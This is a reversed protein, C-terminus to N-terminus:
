LSTKHQLSHQYLARNCTRETTILAARASAFEMQGLDDAVPQLLAPTERLTVSHRAPNRSSDELVVVQIRSGDLLEIPGRWYIGLKPSSFPRVGPYFESIIANDNVREHSTSHTALQRIHDVGADSSAVPWVLPSTVIEVLESPIECFETEGRRFVFHKVSYRDLANGTRHKGTVLLAYFLPINHNHHDVTRRYTQIDGGSLTPHGNVHHTHWNGLHEIEPHQTEIRRFVNEQYEGDQFFSVASRRAQPGSEIVGTVKITLKGGHKAYTGVLRGGTEDRDFRDCEDFIALLGAEPFVIRIDAGLQSKM